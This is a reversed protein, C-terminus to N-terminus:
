MGTISGFNPVAYEAALNREANSSSEDLKKFEILNSLLQAVSPLVRKLSILTNICEADLGYMMGFFLVQNVVEIASMVKDVDAKEFTANVKRGCAKCVISGDATKGICPKYDNGEKIIHVCSKKIEKVQPPENHPGVLPNSQEATYIRTMENIIPDILTKLAPYNNINLQGPQSAIHGQSYYM